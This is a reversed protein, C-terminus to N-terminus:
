DAYKSYSPSRSRSRSDRCYCYYFFINAQHLLIFHSYSYPINGAFATALSPDLPKGTASVIVVVHAPDDPHIDVVEGQQLGVVEEAIEVVDVVTEVLAM